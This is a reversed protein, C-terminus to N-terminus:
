PRALRRRLIQRVPKWLDLLFPLPDRASFVAYAKAGGISRWWERITLEGHRWRYFAAQLDHRLYIWKAEGYRQVRAEPLPLGALDCYMTYLLEVGGAEAIASRGTPRGVNPEILYFEGSTTDRKMEVYGLGRYDVLRFLRLTEALVPDARCEVGLASTGTEPPWQRIKRAVFTALPEGDRGFYCNCSYLETEDGDIWQQVVFHDAFGGHAAFLARLEGADHAKFAKEKTHAIWRADKVAPKLTCPFRLTPLAREVDEAKFVDATAPVLFGNRQAFETMSPKSMLREVVDHRPLALRYHAELRSRERSLGLVAADSCPYLVPPVAFRPAMRELAGILGPGAVDAQVVEQVARTRACFHRPDSAIGIVPVGRRALIRATQLGTICDLGIVIAHPPPPHGNGQAV